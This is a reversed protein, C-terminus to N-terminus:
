KHLGLVDDILYQRPKLLKGENEHIVQPCVDTYANIVM